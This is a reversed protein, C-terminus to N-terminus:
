TDGEAMQTTLSRPDRRWRLPALLHVLHRRLPRLELLPVPLLDLGQPIALFLLALGGLFALLLLPVPLSRVL